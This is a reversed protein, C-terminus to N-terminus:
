SEEPSVFQPLRYNGNNTYYDFAGEERAGRKRRVRESPRLHQHKYRWPINEMCVKKYYPKPMKAEDIWEGNIGYEVHNQIEARRRILTEASMFRHWLQIAQNKNMKVWPRYGEYRIRYELEMYRDDGRTRPVETLLQFINDYAKDTKQWMEAGSPLPPKPM